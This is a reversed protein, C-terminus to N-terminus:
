GTALGTACIALTASPRGRAIPPAAEDAVALELDFGELRLFVPGNVAGEGRGPAISETGAEIRDLAPPEALEIDFVFRRGLGDDGGEIARAEGDIRDLRLRDLAM